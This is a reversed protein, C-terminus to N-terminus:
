SAISCNCKSTRLRLKNIHEKTKSKEFPLNDFRDDNEYLFNVIDFYSKSIAIDIDISMYRAKHKSYLFKVIDLHGCRISYSMCINVGRGRKMKTYFQEVIELNGTICANIVLSNIDM